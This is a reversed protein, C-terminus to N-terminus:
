EGGARVLIREDGLQSLTVTYIAVKDRPPGVPILLYGDDDAARFHRGNRTLGAFILMDESVREVDSNQAALEVTRGSQVVVGHLVGERVLRGLPVAITAVAMTHALPIRLRVEGLGSHYAAITQISAAGGAGFLGIDVKGCSAEGFVNAPLRNAGFLLYLYGHAPSVSAFGGAPWMPPGPTTCAAGLGRAMVENRVVSVDLMPVLAHTGLNVDHRFSGFLALEDDDPLLLLRGLIAATWSAAIDLAALPQLAYIPALKRARDAYALAGAQIEAALAIQERPRPNIERLAEGGRYDRVSGEASCCIQELVAVNRIIMRKAHPTVVLDSIFGDAADDDAIDDFADDLSLLYIGHLQVAIGERDFIRRLAKQVSASYGLDVLMLDTCTDFNPIANRLYVLLRARIGAAVEAIEEQAILGPLAEALERGSAIGDEFKAFFSAVKPPLIKVIDAFTPADIKGLKGILDRLPELTDASGVLSVRRNIELYAAKVEHADRWIRHSLFGDRGLFAIAVQAGAKVLQAHREAVYADFASMAPGLVTLGLRFSESKEGSRAAVVRRLTRGGHDLRSPRGPCLLEFAATERQLRSTLTASAQPYYHTGIGHRRAGRIDADDNDGVHLSSAADIGQEKLYKAFLTESKSSGHDCSAYLFDWNLEPSCARLLRALQHSNWYTDSIFGVRYGARKMESYKAVIDPNARCLELEAAFEAEALDNLASRDLGFLKFPFYSYIDSIHVEASGSRDKADRRARLEAQVRHQVFSTSVNPCTDSIHSLEFVREFVGDPTTCARFLFTDFVDFSCASVNRTRRMADIMAVNM